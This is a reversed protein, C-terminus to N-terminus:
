ETDCQLKWAEHQALLRLGWGTAHVTALSSVIIRDAFLLQLLVIDEM